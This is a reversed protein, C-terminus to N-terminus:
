HQRSCPLRWQPIAGLVSAKTRAQQNNIIQHVIFSSPEAYQSHCWERTAFAQATGSLQAHALSHPPSGREEEAEAEAGVHGRARSGALVSQSGSTYAVDVGEEALSSKTLATDCPSASLLVSDKDVLCRVPAAGQRPLQPAKVHVWGQLM